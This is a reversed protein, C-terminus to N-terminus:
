AEAPRFNLSAGNICHLTKGEVLLIHGTHCGCRRCHVEITVDQAQSPDAMEAAGDQSMLQSNPESATFFVWGKLLNVKTFSNYHLLGCGRCDYEGERAEAWYPHSRPLETKGERLIPYDDGFMARWDGESRVIEYDYPDRGTPVAATATSGLASAGAATIAGALLERREIKKM